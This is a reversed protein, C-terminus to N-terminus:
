RPKKVAVANIGLSMIEITADDRTKYYLGKSPHINLKLTAGGNLITSLYSGSNYEQILWLDRCDNPM